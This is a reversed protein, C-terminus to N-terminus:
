KGQWGLCNEDFHEIYIKNQLDNPYCALVGAVGINIADKELMNRFEMILNVLKLRGRIFAESKGFKIVLSNIDYKGGSVLKSFAEAEELPSVDKRQLNETIAYEEAEDDSLEKICAPINEMGAILSARFRREGCVIEYRNGVPRVVIPQIVGKGKISLALEELAEENFVKRPNFSNRDILSLSIVSFGLAAKKQKKQNGM